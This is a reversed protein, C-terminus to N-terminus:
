GIPLPFHPSSCFFTKCPKHAIAGRRRKQGRNSKAGQHKEKAGLPAINGVKPFVARSVEVLLSMSLSRSALEAQKLSLKKPQKNACDFRRLDLLTSLACLPRIRWLNLTNLACGAIDCACM